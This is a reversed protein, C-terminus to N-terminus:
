RLWNFKDRGDVSSRSSTSRALAAVYFQINGADEKSFAVVNQLDEFPRFLTHDFQEMFDTLVLPVAPHYFQHPVITRASAEFVDTHQQEVQL